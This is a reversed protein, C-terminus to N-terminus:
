ERDGLSCESIRHPVFALIFSRLEYGFRRAAWLAYRPNCRKLVAQWAAAPIHLASSSMWGTQFDAVRRRKDFHASEVAEAAQIEADTKLHIMEWALARAHMSAAFSLPTDWVKNQESVWDNWMVVFQGLSAANTGNIPVEVSHYYLLFATVVEMQYGYDHSITQLAQRHMADDTVDRGRTTLAAEVAAGRRHAASLAHLGAGALSITGTAAVNFTAATMGFLVPLLSRRDFEYVPNTFARDTWHNAVSDFSLVADGVEAVVASSGLILSEPVVRDIARTVFGPCNDVIVDTWTRKRAVSRGIYGDDDIVVVDDADAVRVGDKEILPAPKHAEFLKHFAAPNSKLMARLASAPVRLKDSFRVDVDDQLGLVATERDMGELIAYAPADVLRKASASKTTAPTGEPSIVKISSMSELDAIKGAAGSDATEVVGRLDGRSAVQITHEAREAELVRQRAAPKPQGSPRNKAGAQGKNKNNNNKNPASKNKYIKNVM